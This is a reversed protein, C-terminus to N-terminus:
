CDAAEAAAQSSAAAASELPRQPRESRACGAQWRRRRRTTQLVLRRWRHAATAAQSQPMWPCPWPPAPAAALLLSSRRWTWVAMCASKRRPSSSCTRVPPRHRTRAAPLPYPATAPGGVGRRWPLRAGRCRRASRRSVEAVVLMYPVDGVRVTIRGGLALASYSRLAAELVARAGGAAELAAPLGPADHTFRVFTGAPLESAPLSTLRFQAGERLKLAQARAGPRSARPRHAPTRVARQPPPRASPASHSRQLAGPWGEGRRRTASVALMWRPLLAVGDPASFELVGALQVPLAPRPGNRDPVAAAAAARYNHVRFVLPLPLKLRTMEKFAAPPLVLKDGADRADGGAAFARATFRGEFAGRGGSGFGPYLPRPASM